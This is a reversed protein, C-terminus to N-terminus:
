GPRDAYVARVAAAWRVSECPFLVLRGWLGLCGTCWGDEDPTHQRLVEAAATRLRQIGDRDAPDSAVM